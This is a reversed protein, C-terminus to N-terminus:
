NRLSEHFIWIVLGSVVYLLTTISLYTSIIRDVLEKKGEEDKKFFETYFVQFLGLSFVIELTSAFTNLLELKGYEAPVLYRTYIPILFFSVGRLVFAGLSYLM